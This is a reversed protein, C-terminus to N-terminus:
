AWSRQFNRRLVSSSAQALIDVSDITCISSFMITQAHKQIDKNMNM